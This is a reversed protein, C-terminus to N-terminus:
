GGTLRVLHHKKKGRRVVLFRGDLADEATVTRGVDAIRANNLYIGGGDISRRADGKSKAVEVRVLLDVIGMGEGAIDSMRLEGSPVEAFIDAIEEGGLGTIEGGFLVETARRARSLGEEGHVRRTVDEALARQAAREHPRSRLAEELAEVEGRTLLTFFKLYPVVNDDETNLWFQYFRFPSTREPDLWVTGAETKGFKVGGSTTVLPFVIGHAKGGASRRILDIGATINGWQDSGGLQLGCGYRRYLELFDYAQLLVYSFETFSIGAEEEQLRRRISEKRLLSNVSFHKGVDRLFDVIDLRGLWDLNNVIRAPNVASEFDLFHGLQGRIGALNRETDEKSLLGREKVKGSPDGILGTGGGAVAIAHHGARQLHVLGMIPLLSGVHLSDASPDFGIYGTVPGEAFAERAGETLDHLLGRWELERLLGM